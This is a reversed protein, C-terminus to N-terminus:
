AVIGLPYAALEAMVTRLFHERRGGGSLRRVFAVQICLYGAGRGVCSAFREPLAEVVSELDALRSRRRDAPTLLQWLARFSSMRRRPSNYYPSM